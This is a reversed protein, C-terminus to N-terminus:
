CSEAGELPQLSPDAGLKRWSRPAAPPWLVGTEAQRDQPRRKQTWGGEAERKRPCEPSYKPCVQAMRSVRGMELAKTIGDTIDKKVNHPLM